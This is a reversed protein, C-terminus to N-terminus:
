RARTCCLTGALFVRLIAVSGGYMSHCWIYLHLLPTERKYHLTPLTTGSVQYTWVRLSPVLLVKSGVRYDNLPEHQHCAKSAHARIEFGHEADALLPQDLAPAFDGGPFAFDALDQEGCGGPQDAQLRREITM